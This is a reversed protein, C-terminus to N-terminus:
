RHFPELAEEWEVKEQMHRGDQWRPLWTALISRVAADGAAPIVNYDGAMIAIEESAILEAARLRMREMWALKYDYKPGPVPNGNPLYLSALRLPGSPTSVVVEIFRAHDAMVVLDCCLALHAGIGAATDNVAAIVPVECDLVSPMLTLQGDLMM